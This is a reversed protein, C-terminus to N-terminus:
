AMEWTRKLDNVATRFRDAACANVCRIQSEVGSMKEVIRKANRHSKDAKKRWYGDTEGRLQLPGIGFRWPYILGASWSTYPGLWGWRWYTKNWRIVVKM